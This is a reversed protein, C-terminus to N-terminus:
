GGRTQGNHCIQRLNLMGIIVVVAEFFNIRLRVNPPVLAKIYNKNHQLIKKSEM